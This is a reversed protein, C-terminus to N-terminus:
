ALKRERDQVKLINDIIFPSNWFFNKGWINLQIKASFKSVGPYKPRNTLYGGQIIVKKLPGGQIKILIELGRQIKKQVSLIVEEIFTIKKRSYGLKKDEFNEKQHFFYWCQEIKFIAVRATQKGLYISKQSIM